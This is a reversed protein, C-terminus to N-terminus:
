KRVTQRRDGFCEWNAYDLKEQLFKAKREASKRKKREELLEKKMAAQESMFTAMQDELEKQRTVFDELVLQMTKKTLEDEWHQEVLYQIFRDKQDEAIGESYNIPSRSYTGEGLM